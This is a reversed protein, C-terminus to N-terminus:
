LFSDTSLTQRKGSEEKAGSVKKFMFYLLAYVYNKLCGIIAWIHAVQGTVTMYLGSLTFRFFMSPSLIYACSASTLLILPSHLFCWIDTFRRAVSAPM